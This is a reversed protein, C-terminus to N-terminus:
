GRKQRRGKILKERQKGRMKDEKRLWTREKGREREKRGTQRGKERGLLVAMVLPDLFGSVGVTTQAGEKRWCMWEMVWFSVRWSVNPTFFIDEQLKREAQQKGRLGRGGGGGGGGGRLGPPNQKNTKTQKKNTQKNQYLRHDQWKLKRRETTIQNM